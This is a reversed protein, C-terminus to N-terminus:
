MHVTINGAPGSALQGIVTVSVNHADMLGMIDSLGAPAVSLLLGGATQPDCLIAKALDSSESDFGRVYDGYSQWNRKTGGPIMGARLCQSLVSASIVPVADYDIIAGCGAGMAMEHVHGLLGFGTVDTVAHVQSYGALESGIRNDQLMVDLALQARDPGILGRKLATTLIGTGIPKTLLLVDGAQGTSNRKLDSLKVRGTVALGFVPEPNDISHGGALVVGVDRCVARAGEVVRNALEAPLKEVPWGLVALAMLPKGGMAWVDSLANVSAIRGFDFPDDVVPMFFDTTSVVGTGDGLDYM